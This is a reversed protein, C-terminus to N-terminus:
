VSESEGPLPVGTQKLSAKSVKGLHVLFASSRELWVYARVEQLDLERCTLQRWVLWGDTTAGQPQHANRERGEKRERIKHM